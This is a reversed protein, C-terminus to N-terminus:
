SRMSGTLVLGLSGFLLIPLWSAHLPGLQGQMGLTRTMFDVGFYLTCILFGTAVREVGGGRQQGLVFPLGVLLLVLGALPFSVHYQLLTRYPAHTPDRRLLDRTETFSLDLASERGKWALRVDGPEFVVGDLREPRSRTQGIADMELRQGEELEWHGDAAVWFAREARLSVSRESERYRLSLGRIEPRQGAEVAPLFRDIRVVRGARDKVWLGEYVPRERREVLRDLLRDRQFGLEGTAWERLVFMGAACLLAGAFVPAMLRRKSVGANLAALVENHKTLRAATFMGAVLSVFPSMQLYLFPTQLAYYLALDRTAPTGREGERLYDELNVAMDLVLFLGVVLVFAVLYSDAFLRAVYRDIRGGIRLGRTM